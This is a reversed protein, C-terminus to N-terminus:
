RLRSEAQGRKEMDVPCFDPRCLIPAPPLINRFPKDTALRTAGLWGLIQFEKFTNM